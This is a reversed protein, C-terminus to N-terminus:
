GRLQQKGQKTSAAVSHRKPLVSRLVLLSSFSRAYGLKELVSDDDSVCVCLCM